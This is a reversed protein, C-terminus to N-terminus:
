GLFSIGRRKNQQTSYDYPRNLHDTNIRHSFFNDLRNIRIKVIDLIIILNCYSLIRQIFARM